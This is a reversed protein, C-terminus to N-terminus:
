PKVSNFEAPPRTRTREKRLKELRADIESVTTRIKEKAVMDTFPTVKLDAAKKQLGQFRQLLRKVHNWEDTCEGSLESWRRQSDETFRGEKTVTYRYRYPDAKNAANIHSVLDEAVQEIQSTLARSAETYRRLTAEAPVKAASWETIGLSDRLATLDFADLSRALGVEVAEASTLTLISREDDIVRFGPTKRGAGPPPDGAIVPKDNETYCYVRAEPLIM